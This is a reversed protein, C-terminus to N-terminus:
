TLEFKCNSIRLSNDYGVTYIKEHCLSLLVLAQCHANITTTKVLKKLPSFHYIDVLGDGRGVILQNHDQTVIM